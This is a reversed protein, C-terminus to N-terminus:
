RSNDAERRLDRTLKDAALRQQKAARHAKENRDAVDKIAAKHAAKNRDSMGRAKANGPEQTM